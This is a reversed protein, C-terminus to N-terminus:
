ELNHVPGATVITSPCVELVTEKDVITYLGRLAPHDSELRAVSEQFGQFKEHTLFVRLKNVRQMESSEVADYEAILAQMRELNRLTFSVIQGAMEPGHVDALHMYEEGANAAM